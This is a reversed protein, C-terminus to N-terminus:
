KKEYNETAEMLYYYLIRAEEDNLLVTKDVASELKSIYQLSNVKKMLSHESTQRLGWLHLSKVCEGWEDPTNYIKDLEDQTITRYPGFLWYKRRKSIKKMYCDCWTEYREKLYKKEFDEYFAIAAKVADYVVEAPFHREAM